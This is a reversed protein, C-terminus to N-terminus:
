AIGLKQLVELARESDSVEYAEDPIFDDAGYFSPIRESTLFDLGPFVDAPLETKLPEALFRLDHTKAPEIGKAILKSKLFLEVSEQAKRISKDFFGQKHSEQAEQAIRAATRAWYQSRKAQGDTM